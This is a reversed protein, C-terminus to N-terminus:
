KKIVKIYKKEVTNLLRIVIYALLTAFTTLTYLGSAIAVGIAACMWVSAATTLGKVTEGGKFITGAGIFGIGIVISAAIRSVDVRAYEQSLFLSTITFLAAGLCVLIHTRFGAAKGEIERIYGIVGGFIAALTLRLMMELEMEM